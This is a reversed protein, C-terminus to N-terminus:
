TSTASADAATPASQTARALYVIEQGASVVPWWPPQYDGTLNSCTRARDAIPGDYGVLKSIAATLLTKALGVRAMNEDWNIPRPGPMVGHHAVGHRTLQADDMELTWPIQEGLFVRQVSTPRENEASRVRDVLQQEMGAVAFTRIQAESAKVWAMWGVHDAIRLQGGDRLLKNAIGWTCLTETAIWAHLFQSDVFGNASAAHLHLAALLPSNPYQTLFHLVREVFAVVCTPNTTCLLAPPRRSGNRVLADALALHALSNAVGQTSVGRFIGVGLPEGVVFSIVALAHVVRTVSPPSGDTSDLGVLWQDRSRTPIIFLLGDPGDFRWGWVPSGAADLRMNGNPWWLFVPTSSSAFKLLAVWLRTTVKSADEVQWSWADIRATVEQVGTDVSWRTHVIHSAGRDLHLAGRARVTGTFVDRTWQPADEVIARKNPPTGEIVLRGDDVIEAQFIKPCTTGAWTVDHLALHRPLSPVGSAAVHELEIAVHEDIPHEIRATSM